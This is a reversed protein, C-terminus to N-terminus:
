LVEPRDELENINDPRAPFHTALLRSARQIAELVGRRYAHHRFAEEMEHCIADWESQAVRAAIGRDALIEVQHDVLQVYILIGSAERTNAVGLRGFLEAARGRASQGALLARLPLPGEAVFRLEGRHQQESAAIAARIAERDAARFARRALWGPTSLHKLTRALHMDGIGRHAAVVSAAAGAPSAAM